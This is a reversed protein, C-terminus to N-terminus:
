EDNIEDKIKYRIDVTKRVEFEHGCQCQFLVNENYYFSPECDDNIYGLRCSPCKFDPAENKDVIRLEM